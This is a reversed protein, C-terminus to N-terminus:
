IFINHSYLTYYIFICISTIYIFIYNQIYMYLHLARHLRHLVADENGVGGAAVHAAEEGEAGGGAGLEGEVAGAEPHALICM